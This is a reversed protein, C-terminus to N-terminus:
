DSTFKILARGNVEGKRLRDHTDNVNELSVFEVPPYRITNNAVFAVCEKLDSLKGVVNGQIHYQKATLEVLPAEIKGGFLGVTIHSGSRRLSRYSLNFTTGSGVFDIAADFKYKGGKTTKQIEAMYMERSEFQTKWQVTFDAGQGKALDLKEQAKDAVTIEINKDAYMQKAIQICWLGLGGAGTVLLKSMQNRSYGEELFSRAKILSTFVTLVSCPLMCVIHKPISEPVKILINLNHAAVHTSYGGSNVPGLGYTFFMGPNDECENTYGAKCTECKGCGIWPYLIVM